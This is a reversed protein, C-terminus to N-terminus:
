GVLPNRCRLSPFRSFDRDATWLERVGHLHCLAAIHADHVLPGAARSEALTRELAADYGPAEALLRLVPSRRWAAFAALAQSMPTPRQFIRPSTVVALFEHVCPWPVGWDEAGEALATLAALARAHWPSDGRSSYVLLNTDCAIL